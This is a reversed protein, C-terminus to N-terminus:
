HDQEKTMGAGIELKLASLSLNVDALFFVLGAILCLMCLVFLSTILMTAELQLLATLFLTIILSAALLLSACAFEIALRLLRGRRMLIVLQRKVQHDEDASERRQLGALERTRDIVRAFRNSMSLLILGVGSIVIVPGISLQLAPVLYELSM